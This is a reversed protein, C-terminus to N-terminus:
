AFTALSPFFGSPDRAALLSRSAWIMRSFNAFFACSGSAFSLQRVDYLKWCSISHQGDRRHTGPDAANRGGITWYMGNVSPVLWRVQPCAQRRAEHGGLLQSDGEPLKYRSPM